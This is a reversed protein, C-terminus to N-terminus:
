NPVASNAGAKCRSQHFDACCRDIGFSFKVMAGRGVTWGGAGSLGQCKRIATAASSIPLQLMKAPGSM